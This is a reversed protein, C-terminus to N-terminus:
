KVDKRMSKRGQSASLIGRLIKIEDEDPGARSFLRRLRRMLKDSKRPDTFRIDELTQELHAIFGEFQEQPAPLNQRETVVPHQEYAVLIEYALVQVAMGVNLSSYEPNTPIQVLQHCRDLEENSLGSSERGFVLAVDTERAAEVVREGCQRPDLMSWSVTRPRASTGVVLRCGTLAEDLSDVVKAQELLDDAGSARATAEPDPFRRPEVLVLQSLCMNKMARAVAGINGPHSTNVLVIRINSLMQEQRNRSLHYKVNGM